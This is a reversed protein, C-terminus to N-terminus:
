RSVKELRIRAWGVRLTASTLKDSMGVRLVAHLLSFRQKRTLDLTVTRMDSDTVTLRYPKVISM